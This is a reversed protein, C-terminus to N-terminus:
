MKKSIMEKENLLEELNNQQNLITNNLEELKIKLNLLIHLNSNDYQKIFEEAKSLAIDIEEISNCKFYNNLNTKIISVQNHLNQQESQTYNM